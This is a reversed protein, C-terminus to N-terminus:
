KNFAYRPFAEILRGFAKICEIFDAVRINENPAHVRSGTWQCGFGAVPVGNAQCLEYMPGSGPMVPYVVPQYGSARQLAETAAKAIASEPSSRAPLTNGSYEFVEIHSFGRRALHARILIAVKAPTLNPVLRLDIKARAYHPIVTKTGEGQHGSALGNISCTTGFYLTKKADRDSQHGLLHPIGYRQVYQNADFPLADLLRMEAETPPMVYDAFGDITVTGNSARMTQLAEILVWAANLILGGQSSHADTIATTARLEFCAIGKAGLFLVSAGNDERYGGEWLCGAAQSIWKSQAVGFESLQQSGTEEEGEWVYHLSVPLDGYVTRWATLASLRAVVNGKNDAAGRAYLHGNRLTPIFPATIWENLPDEPQVDYHNYVMLTPGDGGEGTIIAPHNSGFTFRQTKLGAKEALSVVIQEAKLMADTRGDISPIACLQILNGIFQEAHSDVYSDFASFESTLYSKM